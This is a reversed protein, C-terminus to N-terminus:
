GPRFYVLVLGKNCRTVPADLEKVAGNFLKRNLGPLFMATFDERNVPVQHSLVFEEGAAPVSGDLDPRGVMRLGERGERGVGAGIGCGKCRVRRVDHRANGRIRDHADEIQASWWGGGVMEGKLDGNMASPYRLDGHVRSYRGSGRSRTWVFRESVVPVFVTWGNQGGSAHITNDTCEVNARWLLAGDGGHDAMFVSNALKAPRRVKWVEKEASSIVHGATDPGIFGFDRPRSTVSIHHAVSDSSTTHTSFKTAHITM